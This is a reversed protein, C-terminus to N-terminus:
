QHLQIQLSLEFNRGPMARRAMNQYNTNLLNNIRLELATPIDWLVLHRNLRLNLLAYGALESENTTTLFRRSTWQSFLGANWERYQAQINFGARHRPVYPLQKNFSRDFENLPSQNLSSTFAYHARFSLALQDFDLQYRGCAELGNIRVRRFNQPRWFSGQDLWVIWDEVSSHFYTAEASFGKRQFHLGSEYSWAQEASLNPNGGPEWFLDNFAPVRYNRSLQSKFVLSHDQQELLTMESGLAPALPAQFGSVWGQRLNLSLEWWPLPDYLLAAFADARQQSAMGEYNEAQAQIYQWDAGAKLSLKKTIKKDYQLRVLTRDSQIPQYDAFQQHDRVYGATLQLYGWGSQQQYRASLRVHRDTIREYTEPKLNNSMLPLVGNESEEYWANLSLRRNSGPQYSVEQMLGLNRVDANEQREMPSGFKATNEFPFNNEARKYYVRSNFHWDGMGLQAQIGGFFQGFSGVTQNAQLQLGEEDPAESGLVISGGLADSGYFSSGGGYHVQVQDFMFVPLNSFDTSGLTMSNLNIGNWLVATHSAATGRLSLTSAMGFGYERLYLPTEQQLLDQLSGNFLSARAVSDIQQVKSGTAYKETPIGLIEVNELLLTDAVQAPLQIPALLILSFFLSRTFAQRLKKLSCYKEKLQRM